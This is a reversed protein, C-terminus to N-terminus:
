PFPLRIKGFVINKSTNPGFPGLTPCKTLEKSLKTMKNETFCDLLLIM